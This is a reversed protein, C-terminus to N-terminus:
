GISWHIAKGQDNFLVEEIENYGFKVEDDVSHATLEEILELIKDAKKTVLISSDDFRAHMKMTAGDATILTLEISCIEKEKYPSMPNVQSCHVSATAFEKVKVALSNTAEDSETHDVFIAYCNM